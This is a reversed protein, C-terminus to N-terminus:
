SNLHKQHRRRLNYLVETIDLLYSQLIHTVVVFKISCLTRSTRLLPVYPYRPSWFGQNVCRRLFSELRNRAAATWFGFMCALPLCGGLLLNDELVRHGPVDKASLEPLGHSCCPENGTLFVVPVSLIHRARRPRHGWRHGPASGRTLPDPPCLGGQLQLCKVASSLLNTVRM